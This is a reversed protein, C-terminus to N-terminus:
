SPQPFPASPLARVPNSYAPYLNDDDVGGVRYSDGVAAHRLSEMMLARTEQSLIDSFEELMVVFTTGVFGRWNPDWSDYIVPEYAASGVEPEEPYKQYTGYWQRGPEKFQGGIVNRIIREAEALDDNDRGRALLGLAYWASSRTNHRLASERDLDYLYGARPDYFTDMFSMSEDLLQQANPALSGALALGALALLPLMAAHNHPTCTTYTPTSSKQPPPSLVGLRPQPAPIYSPILPGHYM